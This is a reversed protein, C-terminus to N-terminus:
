KRRTAANLHTAVFERVRPADDPALDQAIVPSTPAFEARLDMILEYDLEGCGAAAYGSAVVDKAHLAGISPGLMEFASTLVARQGPATAPTLLNAPDLVITVHQADSGLERLLRAAAEADHVVNGAEPEVGLKVGAAAATPLLHDLTDRLDRWAGPSLNDPHAHWINVPDRTGTCLTLVTAGLDPVRPLLRTVARTADRRTVPDPHIANFTGSVGWVRIGHRRFSAHISRATTTDLETDLTPRGLAALNLQTTTFGAAAIAAAIENPPGTPFVRAFVGVEVTM